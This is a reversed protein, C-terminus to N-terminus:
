YPRTGFMIANMVADRSERDMDALSPEEYTGDDGMMARVRRQGEIRDCKSKIDLGSRRLFQSEGGYGNHLWRKELKTYKPVSM